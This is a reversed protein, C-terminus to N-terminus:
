CVTVVGFHSKKHSPNHKKQDKPSNKAARNSSVGEAYLAIIPEGILSKRKM